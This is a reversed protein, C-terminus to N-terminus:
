PHIILSLIIFIFYIYISVNYMNKNDHISQFIAFKKKFVIKFVYWDLYAFIQFDPLLWSMKYFFSKKGSHVFEVFKQPFKTHHLPIPGGGLVM